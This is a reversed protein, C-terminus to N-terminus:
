ESPEQINMHEDNEVLRSIEFVRSLEREHYGISDITSSLFAEWLFSIEAM